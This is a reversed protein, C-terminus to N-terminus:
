SKESDDMPYVCLSKSAPNHKVACIRRHSYTTYYYVGAERDACSTYLTAVPLGEATKVCGYPVALSDMIHFFKNVPGEGRLAEINEKIFVGRVFRSSSSFDGPLGLAGMGRSYPSLHNKTLHNKPYDARLTMFDALRTTHFSFDPSNTLVGYPNDYVRLGDGVSEVTVASKGDAFIWHLATSPLRESFSKATININKLADKAGEVDRCSGLIYALLEYSALNIRGERDPHYVACDPFNLAGGCLGCENMGDFYLPMKGAVAAIGIISYEAKFSGFSFGRPSIVVQQGFSKEYDLTRGFLGDDLMNIATCM